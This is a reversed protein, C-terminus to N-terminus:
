SSKGHKILTGNNEENYGVLPLRVGGTDVGIKQLAYKVPVPNPATFLAKFLPLLARICALRRKRADKM